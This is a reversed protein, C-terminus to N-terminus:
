CISLADTSLSAVMYTFFSWSRTLSNSCCFGFIHSSDDTDHPFFDNWRLPFSLKWWSLVNAEVQSIILGSWVSSYQKLILLLLLLSAIEWTSALNSFLSIRMLIWHLLCVLMMSLTNARRVFRWKEMILLLTKGNPVEERSM